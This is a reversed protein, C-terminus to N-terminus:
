QFSPVTPFFPPLDPLPYDSFPFAQFRNPQWSTINGRVGSAFSFYFFCSKPVLFPPLDSHRLSSRTRVRLDRLFSNCELCLQLFSALSLIDGESLFCLPAFNSASSVLLKAHFFNPPLSSFHSSRVKGGEDTAKNTGTPPNRSSELSRPTSPPTRDAQNAGRPSFRSPHRRSPFSPPDSANLSDVSHRGLLSGFFLGAFCVFIRPTV